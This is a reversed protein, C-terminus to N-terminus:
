DWSLMLRIFYETDLKERGEGVRSNYDNSLGLRVTWYDATGLPIDIGSEHEILYDGFDNVSPIYNVSSVLKGWDAFQWNLDFGMDLGPFSDDEVGADTYSEYRYSAGAHGELQLREEQIFRYNLGAGSTSRFDIGEFTDRELEQRVYWGWKPTFFNTYDIGLKQEDKTRQDNAQEYAYSGYFELRDDPGELKARAMVSSGFEDTNGDSGSIDLGVNFSWQRRESEAAARRAAERPDLTGEPWVTEVLAVDAAVPGSASQVEVQGAGGAELPGRYVEGESTRVMVPEESSFSIVQAQAIELVGAFATEIFFTGEHVKQLTGEIRSGDALEFTAAQMGAVPFALVAATLVTKRALAFLQHHHM